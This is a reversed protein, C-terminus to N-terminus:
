PRASCQVSIRNDLNLIIWIGNADVDTKLRFSSALQPCHMQISPHTHADLPAHTYGDHRHTGPAQLHPTQGGEEMMFPTGWSIHM